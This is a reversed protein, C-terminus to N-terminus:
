NDQDAVFVFAGTLDNVAPDADRAGFPQLNFRKEILKLISVTEYETHDVFGNGIRATIKSHIIESQLNKRPADKARAFGNLSGHSL